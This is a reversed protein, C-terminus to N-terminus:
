RRVGSGTGTGTGPNHTDLSKSLTHTRKELEDLRQLIFGQNKELQEVRPIIIKELIMKIQGIESSMQKEADSIENGAM